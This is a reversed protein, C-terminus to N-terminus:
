RERNFLRKVLEPNKSVILGQAAARPSATASATASASVSGLEEGDESGLALGLTNSNPFYYEEYKSGQPILGHGMTAGLLPPAACGPFRSGTGTPVRERTSLNYGIAERKMQLRRVNPPPVPQEPRPTAPAHPVMAPASTGPAVARVGGGTPSPRATPSAGPTATDAAAATQEARGAAEGDGQAPSAAPFGRAAQTNPGKGEAAADAGKGEAEAPYGQGAGTKGSKVLMEYDKRTMAGTQRQTMDEGKKAAGRENLTVGPAMKMTEMMRPQQSSFKKFTDVFEPEKLKAKSKRDDKKAVRASAVKPGDGPRDEASAMERRLVFSPIPNASALKDAQLAQVWIVNGSSDYTFPKNKMQDKVQALRAAEEAEDNEKKKLRNEEDRKRKAERDKMERMATEEEDQEVNEVLPIMGERLNGKGKDNADDSRSGTPQNMMRSPSRSSVSHSTSLKKGQKAVQQKRAQETIPKSKPRVLKRRVPVCARAWTDIRCRTPEAELAWSYCSVERVPPEEQAAVSGTESRKGDEGGDGAAEAEAPAPVVAAGEADPSGVATETNLVQVLPAITDEGVSQKSSSRAAPIAPVPVVIPGPVAPEAGNFARSESSATVQRRLREICDVTPEPPEGEDHRVFCMKLESIILDSVAGSAFSFSKKEIYSDYLMKGGEALIMDIVEEAASEASTFSSLISEIAPAPTGLRQDGGDNSM